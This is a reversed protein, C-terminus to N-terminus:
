GFAQIAAGLLIFVGALMSGIGYDAAQQAFDRESYRSRFAPMQLSYVVSVFRKSRLFPISQMLCISGVLLPPVPDGPRITLTFFALITASLALWTRSIVRM